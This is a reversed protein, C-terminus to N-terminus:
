TSTPTTLLAASARQAAALRRGVGATDTLPGASVQQAAAMRRGAGAADTLPGASKKPLGDPRGPVATAALAAKWVKQLTGVAAASRHSRGGWPMETGRAPGVAPARPGPAGGRM